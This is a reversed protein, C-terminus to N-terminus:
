WYLALGALIIPLESFSSPSIWLLFKAPYPNINIYENQLFYSATQVSFIRVGKGLTYENTPFAEHVQFRLQDTYDDKVYENLDLTWTLDRKYVVSINTPMDDLFHPPKNDAVYFLKM